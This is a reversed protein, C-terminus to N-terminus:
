LIFDGQKLDIFGDLKITFEAQEDGDLDALVLTDGKKQEFRLEGGAGAFGREGRWTLGGLGSLDIRDGHAQTFDLIRDFGDAPSDRWGGFVLRDAGQGGVLGDAGLGGKLVDDGAGGNLRDNGDNGRLIDHGDGGLLTDDGESGRLNDNGAEGDIRDDGGEGDIRNDGSGTTLDDDGRTPTDSLDDIALAFTGSVASLGDEDTAKVQVSYSTKAEFDAGGKFWLETGRIEFAGADSGVLSLTETGFDDDMVAIDAVKVPAGGERTATVPDLLTVASPGANGFRQQYIGSGSGDQLFSEWTVVWGGDVLAGIDPITQTNFTTANVRTEAGVAVGDSDYRQQFVGTNSGDSSVWSVVWGGDELAAVSSVSQSGATTTNVQVEAGAPLGGADFRQQYIGSGSGDQQGSTWTVVWGGDPLPAITPYSQDEAVTTNVRTETGLPAGSADFLQQYVGSRDGDQAYSAWIVVWGGGELAAVEPLSQANDTYANVQMEAGAPHGGADFRQQFVGYNSGDQLLSAWTAIWGGGTLAALAPTVQDDATTTNVRTEVGVPTGDAGFRQQYIGNGSGDQLTSVWAVVWGGGPLGIVSPSSQANQSHTNVLTEPGAPDGDADYRQQYIGYDSTDQGFSAWTVVWGGDALHAVSAGIQDGPTYANVRTEPGKLSM